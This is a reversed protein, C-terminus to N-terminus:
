ARRYAALYRPTAADVNEDPVPEGPELSLPVVGAWTPFGLDDEDDLPPGTRIKASAEDLSVALITTGKLESENPQRADAWRGRVVHEVVCEMARLKEDPDTIERAQGLVVASRYNM